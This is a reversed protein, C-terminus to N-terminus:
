GDIKEEKNRMLNKAESICLSLPRRAPCAYSCAGCDVCAELHSAALKEEDGNEYADAIKNPMLNIPCVRVCRGCRICPTSRNVGAAAESFCILANVSKDTPVDTFPIATGTLPGGFVIKRVPRITGRCSSIVDGALTGIPVEVNAPKKVADGDFTVPRSVLPMGSDLYQKFKLVSTVNCIVAGTDKVSVGQPIRRGLVSFLLSNTEGNPYSTPIEAIDIDDIYIDSIHKRFLSLADSENDSIALICKPIGLGRMIKHIGALVDGSYTMMTVHDATVYADPETGDVILTDISGESFDLQSWLPPFADRCDVIGSDRLAKRFGERDAPEVPSIDATEQHMDAEIIIHPIARGSKDALSVIGSVTGSVSAHIPCSLPGTGDAILEGVRVYQGASVLPEAPACGGQVMSIYVKEPIALPMVTLGATHKNLGINVSKLHKLLTM